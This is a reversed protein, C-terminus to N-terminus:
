NVTLTYTATATATGNSLTYTVTYTGRKSAQRAAITTGTPTLTWSVNGLTAGTVAATATAGGNTVVSFNNITVIGSVNSPTDNGRVNFSIVQPTTNGNATASFTDDIAAVIGTGSLPFVTQQSGLVNGSNDTVTLTAIKNGGGLATTPAFRVTILCSAGAALTTGCGGAVRSFGTGTSVGIANITMPTTGTGTNSLTVSQQFVSGLLVNGFTLVTPTLTAMPLQIVGTGSLSVTQTSGPVGNSNDTVTISGTSTGAGHPTFRVNINCTSGATLTAGCSPAPTAVRAFDTGTLAISSIALNANGTNTLTVTKTASTSFTNQNGFGLSSLSLSAIPATGTGSVPVSTPSNVGNHTIVVNAFKSGTTTPAFRLTVTCSADRVLIKGTTCTNGVMNFSALDAGTLTASGVVLNAIGNNTVTIALPSSTSNILVNGFALSAPSPAATPAVSVTTRPSDCTGRVVGPTPCFSLQEINWLTDVGDLNRAAGGNDTVTLSGALEGTTNVTITYERVPGSFVATDCNLPTAAGCDAPGVAPTLIERVAVINGPNVKRAFVAQQLTMGTTGPGFDGSVPMNEMLDTSGIEPGTGDRAVDVGDAGDLGAKVSLRLNLYKDGDLIDDAGRGELTDSGAGGLLINGEGWVNGTLQCYNTM